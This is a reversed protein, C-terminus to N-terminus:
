FSARLEMFGASQLQDIMGFLTDDPGLYIEAGATITLADAIDYTVRPRLMVEETTFNVMGALELKLADQLAMWALRLTASHQVQHLQGAVMRNKELLQRPVPRGGMTVFSVNSDLEEFELVVRGSYQALISVEGLLEHDLGLVYQVDPMPVHENGERGFPSRFAFEGRLGFSGITTAFDAGVVQHRYAAFALTATLPLSTDLKSLTIGPFTSTGILYSVSAEVAPLVLHLRTALTSHRVDTDPYDPEGFVVKLPMGAGAAAAMDFAPFHSPSFFPVWVVEWRLPELNLHGRLAMNALRADDENPSRVRMDRPTLNNTPNYADARGWVIVQHGVRLDVPGLYLNVYAERLDPVVDTEGGEHGARLRLEAIADGWEGKRARVKLAAEGYGSKIQLSGEDPVKGMYLAARAYGNLEFGIGGVTAGLGATPEETSAARDENKVEKVEKEDGAGGVAEEFLGQALAVTSGGPLPVLLALVSVLFFLFYRM